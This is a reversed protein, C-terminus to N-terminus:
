GGMGTDRSRYPLLGGSDALHSTELDLPGRRAVLSLKVYCLSCSPNFSNLWLGCLGCLGVVLLDVCCRSLRLMHGSLIKWEPVYLWKRGDTSARSGAALCSECCPVAGRELSSHLGALWVVLWVLWVALACPMMQIRSQAISLKHKSPRISGYEPVHGSRRPTRM